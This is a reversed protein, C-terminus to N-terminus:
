SYPTPWIGEAGEETPEVLPIPALYGRVKEKEYDVMSAYLQSYFTVFAEAIEAHSTCIKINEDYMHPISTPAQHSHALYALLKSNKDGFEFIRQSQYLLKKQTKEVLVLDLQRISKGWIRHTDPNPNKIYEVEAETAIQESDRIKWERDSQLQKIM